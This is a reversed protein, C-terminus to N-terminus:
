SVHPQATSRRPSSGSGKSDRLWKDIQELLMASDHAAREEVKQLAPLFGATAMADRIAWLKAPDFDPITLLLDPDMMLLEGVTTIQRTRLPALVDDPVELQSLPTRMVEDALSASAAIQKGQAKPVLSLRVIPLAVAAAVLAGGIIQLSTVGSLVLVAGALAAILTVRLSWVPSTLTAM